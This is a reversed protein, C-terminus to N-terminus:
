ATLKEIEAEVLEITIKASEINTEIDSKKAMLKHLTVNAAELTVQLDELRKEGNDM